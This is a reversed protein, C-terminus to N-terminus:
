NNLACVTITLKENDIILKVPETVKGIDYGKTFSRFTEDGKLWYYHRWPPQTEGNDHREICIYVGDYRVAVGDYHDKLALAVVCQGETSKKAKRIHTETIEVESIMVCGYEM